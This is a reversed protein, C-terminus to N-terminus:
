NVSAALGNYQVLAYGRNTTIAYSSAGNEITSGSPMSSTINDAVAHYGVDKILVNQGLPCTAPLTITMATTNNVQDIENCLLTHTAGSTLSVITPTTLISVVPASTRDISYWPTTTDGPIDTM